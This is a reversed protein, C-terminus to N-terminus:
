INGKNCFKTHQYVNWKSELVPNHLVKNKM